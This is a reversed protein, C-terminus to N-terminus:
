RRLTWRLKVALLENDPILSREQPSLVLRQWGRNWVIFLDNGPKITWRLRTNAGLNRSETDYQVFSSLVLNPSGAVATQLQWLRQAFNGQKLHGFNNEATVGLQVRGQPSTWRLYHQWQTLNGRYFTGFWTGWGAQWPRHDSSEFELQWRTFRYSGPPIVIGPVIEFPAPLFEFQPAWNFEFADGSELDAKLPAVYYQWSETIGQHNTVRYYRGELFQQRVWRFPGNRSPRPNLSCGAETRRVGRRPLFGLAPNLAVGFDNVTAMCDLFDNPYDVLFGWGNRRGPDRDGSTLATWGGVLLNKNGRFTSTRWVGDVGFLTNRRLGEPDGNTFITGVRFKSTVDYSVRGALLNVSPVVGQSTRTQRTQVDLFALNWKGARGNLKVGADIPIQEGGLLGIRRSFFPIFEEGLGLGFQYQNAGELFFARKEPFFLPFRTTNIQRSDVETEAFDTNATFVTVLQPTIKWTFDMGAAGQWARPSRGFSGKMRGGLYPSIEIGLGQHLGGLGTLTGARSLDYLFSDLTPSSWRLTIRDRGVFRELNLGWDNLGPTFSLTRSPIVIEASWGSETRATRADWIGDWESSAHEPDSILGDARAGAANVRVWYGTRKDGYTDLVVGVSDDGRMEDDRRMTHVVIKGPEPDRCAFGFYIRDGALVVRVVTEYPTPEGPRPSQQILQMLPADRWAPEDLQGDLAIPAPSRAVRVSVSANAADAPAPLGDAALLLSCLLFRRPSAPM